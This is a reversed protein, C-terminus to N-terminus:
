QKWLGLQSKFREFLTRGLPKTFGDAVMESTPIYTVAIRKREELDRTHHYCIDIHKSREHLHPNKVLALAGQNDGRIDVTMPNSGIYSSYGMDRLIQAIWQSQKAISSMAIYESETSSTAVSRQVKSGWSIPGGYLMAVGGSTSKRDTRQGAWDADSYLVLNGQPGPGYRIKQSVTSRLYRFMEKLAEGHHEAPDSLAQALKGLAFAIDPRTHVMAYMISGIGQQYPTVQIRKDTPLAPGLKKYGAAPVSKARHKEQPFGFRNLVTELYQEQDIHLTREKRNRTVRIGLVKKVEGLNKTRFRESLKSGFWLVDTRTPAAAMLDDVYVLIMIKRDPCTFLCPDALSQKFGIQVLYDKCLLNWDRASQKLGYLSRLVRLAYGDRVAVGDPKSLFIRERLHSETFANKIDFHYCELNEAAVIALFIRLTDMRVTPAFTEMYDEGHVQSFGRAVLRAKFREITGDADVKITFVWKTSVLNAGKPPIQEEWTGNVQLSALEEQIADRWSQGYEPDNVAEKYTRPIPIDLDHQSALLALEDEGEAEPDLLIALMAKVIKAQREESNEDEADRKRKRLFHDHKTPQADAGTPAGVPEKPGANPDKSAQALLPEQEPKPSSSKYVRTWLPEPGDEEQGSSPEPGPPAPQENQMERVPAPFDGVSPKAVPIVVEFNNLKSAPPVGTAELPQTRPRGVARRDPLANSTGQPNPGRIKLDVTGGQTNEVFDVVSAKITYGLDPAYVKYQKTTEESYGMFVAVRGRDMLVDQRGGKPLSKPNVYAYCKCGFVRIHDISPKVGTFAEEASFREGNIVPGFGIHNRMYADAEVAEDWFEIPLGADKLMARADSESTQISREATGNQHSSHAVTAEHRIGESESWERLLSKLEAANDIRVALISQRAQREVRKRWGRLKVVVEDRSKAPISWLKRSASDVIQCFYRNGRITKPLPGCVDLSVLALISEKWPSLEKTIRNRMKTLKCVECEDVQSPVKIQHKLTTVKHLKRIKEKGLHGLRRHWLKYLTRESKKVKSVKPESQGESTEADSQDEANHACSQIRASKVQSTNQRAHGPLDPRTIAALATEKLEEAIWSIIYIGGQTQAELIKKNERYFCMTKNNFTGTINGQSCVKKSSLLNVGLKPVYLVKSLLTFGGSKVRMEVTGRYESYLVGGGVRVIRRRIKTLPGRFLQISDTMHSSAGSDSAWESPPVKSIADRSIGAIEEEPEPDSDSESEDALLGEDEQSSPDENAVHGRSAGHKKTKHSSTRNDTERHSSREKGSSKTSKRRRRDKVLARLEKLLDCDKVYHNSACLYCKANDGGSDSGGRSRGRRRPSRPRSSKQRAVLATTKASLKEQQRRLILLKDDIHLTTQSDIVSCTIAYDEPLGELLYDFLEDDTFTSKRAPNAAIVDRRLEKLKTWADEVTMDQELSFTTIKRMHERTAQPTKKSYKAYLGEWKSKVDEFDEIYQEDTEDICITIMYLVESAAAQYKERKEVNWCGTQAVPEKEKGSDKEKGSFMKGIGVTIDDMTTGSSTSMPTHAPDSGRPIWAYEKETQQLVFKILKGGFYLELLKFWRQWNARTLIPAQRKKTLHDTDM